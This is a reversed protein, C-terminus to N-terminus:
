SPEQSEEGRSPAPNKAESVDAASIPESRESKSLSPPPEISEYNEPILDDFEYRSIPDGEDEDYDIEFDDAEEFTEHEHAAAAESLADRIMQKISDMQSVGGRLHVPVEVPTPDLYEFRRDRPPNSSERKSM